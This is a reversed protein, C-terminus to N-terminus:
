ADRKPYALRCAIKGCDNALKNELAGIERQVNENNLGIEKKSANICRPTNSELHCKKLINAALFILMNKWM